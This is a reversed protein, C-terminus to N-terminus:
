LAKMRADDGLEVVTCRSLLEASLAHAIQQVRLHQYILDPRPVLHLVHVRDIRDLLM